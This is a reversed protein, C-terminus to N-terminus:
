ADAKPRLIVRYVKGCSQGTAYDYLEPVDAERVTTSHEPWLRQATRAAAKGITGRLPPAAPDWEILVAPYDLQEAVKGWWTPWKQQASRQKRVAHPRFAREGRARKCTEDVRAGCAPCSVDLYRYRQDSPRGAPNHSPKGTTANGAVAVM